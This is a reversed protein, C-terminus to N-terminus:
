EWQLGGKRWAYGLGFALIGIFIAMEILAYLGLKGVRVAWPYLYAAEVDFLVFLLAFIYYRINFQEWADGLPVIGCEYAQSKSDSPRSPRLIRAFTLAIIVFVVGVAGFAVVYAYQNAM